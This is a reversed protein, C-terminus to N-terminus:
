ATTPNADAIAAATTIPNVLGISGTSPRGAEATVTDKINIPALGVSGGSPRGGFGGDTNIRSGISRAGLGPTGPTDSGQTTMSGRPHLNVTKFDPGPNNVEVQFPGIGGGGLQLTPDVFKRREQELKKLALVEEDSVDILIGTLGVIFAILGLYLYGEAFSPVVLFISGWIVAGINGGAGVFGCVAGTNSLDVYPVIGFTSGEAGQVFISFVILFFISAGFESQRSFVVLTAGECCTLFIHCYKRGNMGFRSYFYDSALGGWSRAFLNM